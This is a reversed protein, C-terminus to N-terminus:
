TDDEKTEKEINDNEQLKGNLKHQTKGAHLYRYRSQATDQLQGQLQQSLV